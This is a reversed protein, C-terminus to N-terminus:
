LSLALLELLRDGVNALQQSLEESVELTRKGQIWGLSKASWLFIFTLILM